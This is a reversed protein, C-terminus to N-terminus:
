TISPTFIPMEGGKQVNETSAETTGQIRRWSGRRGQTLSKYFMRVASGCRRVAAVLNKERRGEAYRPAREVTFNGSGGFVASIRLSVCLFFSPAV